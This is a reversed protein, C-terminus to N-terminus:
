KCMYSRMWIGVSGRRTIIGICPTCIVRITRSMVSVIEPCQLILNLIHDISPFDLEVRRCGRVHDSSGYSIMVLNRISHIALLVSQHIMLKAKMQLKKEVKKFVNSKHYVNNTKIIMM